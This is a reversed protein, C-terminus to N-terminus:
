DDIGYVKLDASMGPWCYVASEKGGFAKLQREGRFEMGIKELVRRSRMDDKGCFGAVGEVGLERRAYEILGAAAETAYGRGSEEPLIAYGVDPVSYGNPPERKMLSVTGIM